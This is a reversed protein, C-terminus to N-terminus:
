RTQNAAFSVRNLVLKIFRRRSCSKFRHAVRILHRRASSEFDLICTIKLSPSVEEGAQPAHKTIKMDFSKSM